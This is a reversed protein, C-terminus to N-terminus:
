DGEKLAARARKRWLRVSQPDAGDNEMDDDLRLAERLAGELEKIRKDQADLADCAAHLCATM